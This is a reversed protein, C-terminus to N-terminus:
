SSHANRQDILEIARLVRVPHDTQIADIGASIARQYEEIREHSGLADAFVKIGRAHCRDILERSLISWDTDFAYPQVREAGSELRAPDRLPPMRRIAPDIARLQQLYAVSQYVVAREVLGHRKLSAALAEPAIDKADVYLEVPRGAAKLFEDLTPVPSRAFPQGFWSGADLAQIRALEWERAPGRGNTTRNLTRDHLLVFGGDRTTQLDFEVFDAGLRIAKALAPLTNEPAYRSAGRHYAIKIPKPGIKQLVQRAIVEEAFDTQVWDVGAAAVRDWVEARDDAGLTKAQVKIGRSKFERCVQRTVDSADIEVAAPRVEDVWPTIGFRPRWKTMVALERTAAARISKLVNPTDYIVVQREMGAAIVDRALKAPDIEKCDLYLNVRGRCLDLGETLALIRTRAFRPAYKKGADLARLEDLTQDSVRGAGDTKSGLQDDHFLVHQGDKTLRVDVEVWEVTDAISHELAPATNEPAQGMAGRHAMVQLARPPRVPELFDFGRRSGGEDPGGPLLVFVFLLGPFVTTTRRLDSM